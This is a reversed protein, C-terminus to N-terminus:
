VLKQLHYIKFINALVSFNRPSLKSLISRAVKGQWDLIHNCSKYIPDTPCIEKDKVSEKNQNFVLSSDGSQGIVNNCFHARSKQNEQHDTHIPQKSFQNQNQPRM